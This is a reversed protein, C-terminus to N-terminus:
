RDTNPVLSDAHYSYNFFSMWVINNDVKYITTEWNRNKQLAYNHPDDDITTDYICDIREWYLPKKDDYRVIVLCCENCANNTYTEMWQLVYCDNRDIRKRLVLYNNCVLNYANHYLNQINVFM